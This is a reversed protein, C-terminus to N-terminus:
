RDGTRVPGTTLTLLARAPLDLRLTGARAVRPRGVMFSGAESTTVTRFAGAPLGSIAAPRAAGRNLVHVTCVAAERGLGRFAGVRVDAAGSEAALVAAPQPTLNAFHRVLAHRPTPRAVGDTVRVLGYDATYEWHLLAAPRAHRILDLYLAAEGLGYDFADFVWPTRWASADTGVETVLLPCGARVALEYWKRGAAPSVGGWSHFAVAGLAARVAPDALAPEVYDAAAASCVDGLVLRTRLGEARFRAALLRLLDRHETPSLRLHVGADPENFSFLAPEVGYRQRLHLLYTAVCEALEPWRSPDV